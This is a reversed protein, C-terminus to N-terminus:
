VHQTAGCHWGYNYTNCVTIGVDSVGGVSEAPRGDTYNVGRTGTNNSAWGAQDNGSRLGANQEWSLYVYTTDAYCTDWVEGYTGISSTGGFNLDVWWIHGNYGGCTVRPSVTYTCEDDGHGNGVCGDSSSASLQRALSPLAAGQPRAQAPTVGLIQSCSMLSDSTASPVKQCTPRAHYSAATRTVAAAHQAAPGSTAAVAAAPASFMAALAAVGAAAAALRAPKLM